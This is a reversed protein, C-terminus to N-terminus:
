TEGEFEFHEEDPLNRRDHRARVTKWCPRIRSCCNGLPDFMSLSINGSASQGGEVVHLDGGVLLSLAPWLKTTTGSSSQYKKRFTVSHHQARCGRSGPPLPTKNLSKASKTYFEACIRFHGMGGGPRIAVGFTIPQFLFAVTKLAFCHEPQPRPPPPPRLAPHCRQGCSAAGRDLSSSFSSASPHPQGPPTTPASRSKTFGLDNTLAATATRPGRPTDNAHQRIM